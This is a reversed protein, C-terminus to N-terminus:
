IMLHFCLFYNTRRFNFRLFCCKSQCYTLMGDMGFDGSSLCELFSGGRLRYGEDCSFYIREGERLSGLDQELSHQIRLHQHNASIWNANCHTAIWFFFILRDCMIYKMKYFIKVEILCFVHIAKADLYQFNIKIDIGQIKSTKENQISIERNLHYSM